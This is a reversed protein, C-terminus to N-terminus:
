KIVTKQAQAIRKNVFEIVEDLKFRITRGFRIRTLLGTGAGHSYIANKSVNLLEAVERVTILKLSTAREELEKIRNKKISGILTM